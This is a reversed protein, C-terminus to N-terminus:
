IGLETARSTSPQYRSREVTPRAQTVKRAGPSLAVAWDDADLFGLVSLSDPDTSKTFFLSTGYEPTDSDYGLAQEFASICSSHTVLVLNKGPVKHELADSLMSAKCQYLWDEDIGVDKFVISETQATRTLPSNYVDTRSLGLQGFSDALVSGVAVSRSTVGDDGVLCPHDEKDCRELHRLLVVVDGREWQTLLYPLEHRSEESLDAVEPPHVIVAGAVMALSGAAGYILARRRQGANLKQLWQKFRIPSLVKLMFGGLQRAERSLIEMRPHAKNLRCGPFLQTTSIRLTQIKYTFTNKVKAVAVAQGNMVKPQYRFSKAAALAPKVFLPHCEGVVQPDEVRGQANVRYAVTRDGEIECSLARQRYDPADKAITLHQSAGNSRCTRGSSTECPRAAIRV